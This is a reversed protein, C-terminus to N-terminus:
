AHTAIVVEDSPDFGLAAALRLSAHNSAVAGWLPERGDARERRILESATVRAYGRRRHDRLTDISIDFWRETRWYAYAFCVPKGGEFAALIQLQARAAELEERLEDPLHALSDGACLPRVRPDPQALRSADSLEHLVARERQWDPFHAVLHVEDEPAVLLERHPRDALAAEILAAEPRGVLAM